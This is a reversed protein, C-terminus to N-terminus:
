TATHLNKIQPLPNKTDRRKFKKGRVETNNLFRM